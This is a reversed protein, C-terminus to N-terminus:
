SRLARTAVDPLSRKVADVVQSGLREALDTYHEALDGVQGSLRNARRRTREWTSPEEEAILSSLLLGVGFGVGFMMLVSSVPHETITGQIQRRGRDAFVRVNRAAEQAGSMGRGGDSGTQSTQSRTNEMAM